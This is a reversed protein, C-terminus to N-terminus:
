VSFMLWAVSLYFSLATPEHSWQTLDRSMADCLQQKQKEYNGSRWCAQM